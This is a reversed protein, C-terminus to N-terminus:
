ILEMVTEIFIQAQPGVIANGYGRLLGVRCSAGDVLPFTGPEVPRFKGDRCGLWDSDRWYGNVPGPRLAGGRGCSNTGSEKDINNHEKRESCRGKSDDALGCACRAKSTTSTVRRDHEGNDNRGQRRDSRNNEVGCSSEASDIIADRRLAGSKNGERGSRSARLEGPSEANDMYCARGSEGVPGAQQTEIRRSEGGGNGNWDHGQSRKNNNNAVWYLRQRQHPAGVSCAPFTASGFAYKSEEMDSQVHDLWSMGAKGSVQEGFVASPRCERILDRFVPWLHRDDAFGKQKGAPSFPQCPCSGTWVPRDDSWGASRLAHSWVGIGAFFHCQTFGLLDDAKLETISREDVIGEAIHGQKILERLWAAAKPDIENYYASM